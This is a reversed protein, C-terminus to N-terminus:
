ILGHWEETGCTISYFGHKKAQDGMVNGKDLVQEGEAVGQTKGQITRVLGFLQFNRCM